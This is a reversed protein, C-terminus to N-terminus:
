KFFAFSNLFNGNKLHYFIVLGSVTYMQVPFIRYEQTKGEVNEPQKKLGVAEEVRQNMLM